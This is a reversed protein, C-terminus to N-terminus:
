RTYSIPGTYGSAVLKFEECTGIKTEAFPRQTREPKPEDVTAKGFFNGEENLPTLAPKAPAAGDGASAASRKAFYAAPVLLRWSARPLSADM